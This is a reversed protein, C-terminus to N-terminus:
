HAVDNEGSSRRGLRTAGLVIDDGCGGAARHAEALAAAEYGYLDPLIVRAPFGHEAPLPVGNMQLALFAYDDLAREVSVSSYFDDLGEFRVSGSTDGGSPALVERLPLM